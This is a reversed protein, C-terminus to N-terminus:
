LNCRHRKQNQSYITTLLGGLFEQFCRLHLPQSPPFVRLSVHRHLDGTTNAKVYKNTVCSVSVLMRELTWASTRQGVFQLCFMGNGVKPRKTFWATEKKPCSKGEGETWQKAEQPGCPSVGSSPTPLHPRGKGMRKVWCSLSCLRRSTGAM